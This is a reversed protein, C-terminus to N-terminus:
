IAKTFVRDLHACRLTFGGDPNTLREMPTGKCGPEECRLLLTVNHEGLRAIVRNLDRVEQWPWVERGRSVADPVILGSAREKWYSEPPRPSV